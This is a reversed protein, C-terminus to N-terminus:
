FTSIIRCFKARHKIKVPHIYITADPVLFGLAMFFKTNRKAARKIPVPLLWAAESVFRAEVIVFKPYELEKM